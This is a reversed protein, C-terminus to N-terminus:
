VKPPPPPPQFIIKKPGPAKKKAEEVQSPPQLDIEYFKLNGGINLTEIPELSEQQGKRYVGTHQEESSAHLVYGGDRIAYFPHENPVEASCIIHLDLSASALHDLLTGVGHDACIEFGVKWNDVTTTGAKKGPVFIGQEGDKFYDDANIKKGFSVIKKGEFFVYTRNKILFSHEVM